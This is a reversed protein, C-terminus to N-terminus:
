QMGGSNSLITTFVRPDSSGLKGDPYIILTVKKANYTGTIPSYYRYDALDYISLYYLPNWNALSIANPDYASTLSFTEGDSEEVQYVLPINNTSMGAVPPFLLLGDDGFFVPPPPMLQTQQTWLLNWLFAPQSESAGGPDDASMGFYTHANTRAEDIYITNVARLTEFVADAMVACRRDNETERSSELAIRGLGFLGVLGIGIALLALATEVLTFGTSAARPSQYPPKASVAAPPMAESMAEPPRSPSGDRGLHTGTKPIGM